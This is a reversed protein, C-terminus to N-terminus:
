TCVGTNFTEYLIIAKTRQFSSCKARQDLERAHRVLVREGAEGSTKRKRRRGKQLGNSLAILVVKLFSIRM